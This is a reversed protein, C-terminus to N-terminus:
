KDHYITINNRKLENIINTKLRSMCKSKSTKLGDKSCNEKRLELIEDLSKNEYYFLTLIQKCRDPLLFNVCYNVIEYIEGSDDSFDILDPITIDSLPLDETHRSLELNKLKAISLLYTKLNASMNHYEGNKDKKVIKGQVINIRKSCIESYLLSFSEQYLDLIERERSKFSFVGNHKALFYTRCELYFLKCAFEDRNIIALIAEKDTIKEKSKAM